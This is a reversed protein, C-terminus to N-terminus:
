VVTFKIIENREQSINFPIQFARALIGFNGFMTTKPLVFSKIKNMAMKM